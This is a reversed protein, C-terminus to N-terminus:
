PSGREEAEIIWRDRVVMANYAYVMAVAVDRDRIYGVQANDSTDLDSADAWYINQPRRKGNRLLRLEDSM